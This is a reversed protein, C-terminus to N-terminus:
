SHSLILSRNVFNLLFNRRHYISHFSMYPPQFPLSECYYVQNPSDLFAEKLQSHPHMLQQRFYSLCYRPWAPCHPAFPMTHSAQHWAPLLIGHQLSVAPEMANCHPCHPSLVSFLVRSCSPPSLPGQHLPLFQLKCPRATMTHLEDEKSSFLAAM